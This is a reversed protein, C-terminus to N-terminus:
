CMHLLRPAMPEMKQGAFQDVMVAVIQFFAHEAMAASQPKSLIKDGPKLLFIGEEVRQYIPDNWTERTILDFAYLGPKAIM